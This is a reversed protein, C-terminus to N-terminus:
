IMYQEYLPRGNAYKGISVNFLNYKELIKQIPMWLKGNYKVELIVKENTRYIWSIDKEYLDLSLESSRVNKDFTIRTSYEKYVFARRDYEILAAPRYAGLVLLEYLRAAIEEPYDLLCGYEGAMLKKAVEKTVLLSKKQQYAGEKQKLELKAFDADEDYIRLRIKKRKETGALKEMYDINNISDFYLSKVRYFGNESYSDYSLLKAMEDQLLLSDQYSIWYKLESRTVSLM